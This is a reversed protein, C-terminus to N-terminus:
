RTLDKTNLPGATANVAKMKCLLYCSRKSIGYQQPHLHPGRIPGKKQNSCAESMLMIKKKTCQESKVIVVSYILTCFRCFHLKYQYTDSTLLGKLFNEQGYIPLKEFDKVAAAGSGVVFFQCLSISVNFRAFRDILFHKHGFFPSDKWGQFTM